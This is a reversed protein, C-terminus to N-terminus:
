HTGRELARRDLQSPKVMTSFDFDSFEFLTKHGTMHNTVRIISAIWINDLQTFNEFTINKLYNDQIDFVRWEHVTWNEPDIDIQIRSYGIERLIEETKPIGEITILYGTLRQDLVRFDIHHREGAARLCAADNPSRSPAAKLFDHHFQAALRGVDNALRGIQFPCDIPRQEANIGVITLHAEGPGSDQHLFRNGIFEDCLEDLATLVNADSVREVFAGFETRGDRSGMPVADQRKNIQGFPFTALEQDAPGLGVIEISPKVHLGGRNLGRRVVYLQALLFNETRKRGEQRKVSQVVCESDGVLCFEPQHGINPGIFQMGHGAGHLVKLGTTDPDVCGHHSFQTCREASVFHGADPSGAAM